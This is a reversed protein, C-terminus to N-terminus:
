RFGNRSAGISTPYNSYINLQEKTLGKKNPKLLAPLKNVINMLSSNNDYSFLKTGNPDINKRRQIEKQITEDKLVNEEAQKQVYNFIYNCGINLLDGTYKM